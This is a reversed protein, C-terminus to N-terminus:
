EFPAWVEVSKQRLIKCYAPRPITLDEASVKGKKFYNLEPSRKLLQPGIEESLLKRLGETGEDMRYSIHPHGGHIDFENLVFVAGDPVGDHLYRLKGIISLYEKSLYDNEVLRSPAQLAMVPMRRSTFFSLVENSRRVAFQLGTSMSGKYNKIFSREDMFSEGQRLLLAFNGDSIRIDTDHGDVLSRPNIQSMPIPYTGLEKLLAQQHQPRISHPVFSEINDCGMLAGATAYIRPARVSDTLFFALRARLSKFIHETLRQNPNQVLKIGQYSEKYEINLERYLKGLELDERTKLFETFSESQIPDIFDDGNGFARHLSSRPNWIPMLSNGTSAHCGACTIFEGTTRTYLASTETDVQTQYDIDELFMRPDGWIAFNVVSFSYRGTCPIYEALEVLQSSKSRPNGILHLTLTGDGLVIRPFQASVEEGHLADSEFELVPSNVFPKYQPSNRFFRLLEQSSKIEHKLIERKLGQFKTEKCRAASSAPNAFAGAPALIALVFFLITKSSM